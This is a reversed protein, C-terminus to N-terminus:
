YDGEFAHPSWNTRWEGHRQQLASHLCWPKRLESNSAEVNENMTFERMRKMDHLEFYITECTGFLNCTRQVHNFASSVHESRYIDKLSSYPSRLNFPRYVPHFIKPFLTPTCLERESSWDHTTVQRNNQMLGSLSSCFSKIEVSKVCNISWVTGGPKLGVALRSLSM